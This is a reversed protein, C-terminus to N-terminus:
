PRAGRGVRGGRSRQASCRDAGGRDESAVAPRSWVSAGVDAALRFGFRPCGSGRHDADDSRSRPAQALGVTPPFAPLTLRPRLKQAGCPPASPMKTLLECTLTLWLRKTFQEVAAWHTLLVSPPPM